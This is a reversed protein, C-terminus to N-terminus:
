YLTFCPFQGEVDLGKELQEAYRQRVPTLLTSPIDELAGKAKKQKESEEQSGISTEQVDVYVNAVEDTYTFSPNMM